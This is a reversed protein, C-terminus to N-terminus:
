KGEFKDPYRSQRLFKEFNRINLIDRIAKKKDASHDFYSKAIQYGMWYGLDNPRGEVSSYLWGKYDKELMREKFELWLEQERPNAFDHVHHNIHKGSILEAIFDASGEKIAASLLNKGDYNQQFHVLEHAVIHPIEDVPKIVTKLWGSLEDAPTEPTLGYMEAGIILGNNSTTGGSNLAGIVFYVPPFIAEPYQEKLKVLSNRIQDKMGAIRETSKRISHYYKEHKSIVESLNKASIIRGKMFGNLGKSGKDLYLSQLVEPNFGPKSAEFAMWFNEIDATVIETKLPDRNNQAAGCFSVALLALLIFQNRIM